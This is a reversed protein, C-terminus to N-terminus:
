KSNASLEQIYDSQLTQFENDSAFHQEFYRHVLEIESIQKKLAMGSTVGSAHRRHYNLQDANYAIAGENKCVTLYLLWDGALRLKKLTDKSSNIAELLYDRKWVVGSVNLIVNRQSLFRRAFSRADERLNSSLAGPFLKSYYDKYKLGIESGEADIAKSDSFAFLTKSDSFSAILKSLFDPHAIDDAEAIWVLDGRALEVGRLWQSFVNGSNVANAVVKFDRKFERRIEELVSISEDTSADDLVIIEFIPSTQGFISGLRERLYRSYNYNPVIVSIKPHTPKLIQILDHAYEDFAFNETAYAKARTALKELDSKPAELLKLVAESLSVVDAYPCPEGLQERRILEPVGGSGEFALVPVGLSMAELAVSPYPDERSTLAFVDAASLYKSVDSLQGVFRVDPFAVPDQIWTSCIADIRGVWVFVVDKRRRSVLQSTACFLDIGKRLDGFGINLVIKTDPPLQLEDLVRAKADSVRAIKQYLGQPRVVIPKATDSIETLFADRVAEVPFVIVDSNQAISSAAAFLNKEKVIRPLEHVLSAVAFGSAKLGAVAVGSALTNTIALKFDRKTLRGITSSLASQQSCVHTTAIDSYTDALDGDGCLLFEVEM